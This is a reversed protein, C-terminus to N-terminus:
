NGGELKKDTDSTSKKSDLDTRLTILIPKITDKIYARVAQADQNTKQVALRSAELAAKFGDPDTKCDMEALDSVTQKYAAIDTKFTEIKGQLVIISADLETTNQGSNKLKETLKTLHDLTNKYVQTRSTELGHVKNKVSSVRGQSAKCNAQIKLKEANTLKTKAALKHKAIREALAKAADAPPLATDTTAITKNSTTSTKPASPSTTTLASEKHPTGTEDAYVVVTLLIPLALVTTAAVAFSRKM